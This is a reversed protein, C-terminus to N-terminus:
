KKVRRIINSESPYLPVDWAFVKGDLFMKWRKLDEKIMLNVLGEFKVKPEWGFKKKAKSYDGRLYLVDLPRLLSKDVKVYKKWDLGVIGFALKVFEKVSHSENTAIVYDEPTDQQLVLHVAEMYDPAFGWDRKADLNGLILEKRLGLSIEAVANTVKRTVFELGRLPSEHNFLIGTCVFIGYAKRYIDSIWHAYLKAAAYPSAPSFATKENQIKHNKNGYMESTSAQYFKINPNIIRVTELLKTVSIGSIESNGIPQDFATSVYSSAALNYIEDPDSNKVAEIMSSMDLLDAPLLKIKSFIDLNQLRWFNPTSLRRFTGFVKYGKELLLKALYSGDQGTIGTILVKKKIM